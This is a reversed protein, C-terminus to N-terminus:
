SFLTAGAEPRMMVERKLHEYRALFPAVQEAKVRDKEPATYAREARIGLAKLYRPLARIRDRRYRTPFDPPVLDELEQSLLLLQALVAQNRAALKKLRQLSARTAHRTKVVDFIEDLMEQSLAGIQAKSGNKLPRFIAATLGNRPMCTSSNGCSISSSPM